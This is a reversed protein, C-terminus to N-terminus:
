CRYRRQLKKMSFKFHAELFNEDKPSLAQWAKNLEAWLKRFDEYSGAKDIIISAPIAYKIDHCKDDTSKLIEDPNRNLYGENIKLFYKGTGCFLAEEMFYRFTDCFAEGWEGYGNYKGKNLVDSYWLPCKHFASHFIEHFMSGLEGDKDLKVPDVSIIAISGSVCWKCEGNSNQIVKDIPVWNGFGASFIKAEAETNDFLRYLRGRLKIDNLKNLFNGKKM